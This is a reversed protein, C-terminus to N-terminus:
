DKTVIDFPQIMEPLYNIEYKYKNVEAGGLDEIIYMNNGALNVIHKQYKGKDTEVIIDLRKSEVDVAIRGICEFEAKDTRTNIVVVRRLVNFNDAEQAISYSARDSEREECGALAAAVAALIILLVMVLTVRAITRSKIIIRKKNM